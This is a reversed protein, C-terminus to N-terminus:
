THDSLTSNMLRVASSSKSFKDIEEKNLDLEVIEEIGNKGIICPVGICIDTQNYEGNLLVSCPITNKRDNIISDVLDMNKM